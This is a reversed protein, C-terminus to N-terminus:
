PNIDGKRRQKQAEKIEKMDERMHGYHAEIVAMNQAMATSHEAMKQVAADTRNQRAHIWAFPLSLFGVVAALWKITTIEDLAM